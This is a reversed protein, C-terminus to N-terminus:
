SIELISIFMDAAAAKDCSVKLIDNAELSVKEITLSAGINIPIDKLLENDSAASDDRVQMSINIVETGDKNSIYGAFVVASTNAPCTYITTMSIGAEVSANKFANPM